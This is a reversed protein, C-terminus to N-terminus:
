DKRREVVGERWKDGKTLDERERGAGGRGGDEEGLRGRGREM